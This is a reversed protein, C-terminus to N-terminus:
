CKSFGISMDPMHKEISASYALSVRTVPIELIFYYLEQLLVLDARQTAIVTHQTCYM